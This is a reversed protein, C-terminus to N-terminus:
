LVEITVLSRDNCSKSRQLLTNEITVLSRDNCSKSRQLLTIVLITISKSVSRGVTNKERLIHRTDTVRRDWVIPQVMSPSTTVVRVQAPIVQTHTPVFHPWFINRAGQRTHDLSHCYRSLNKKYLTITTTTTSNYNDLFLQQHDYHSGVM